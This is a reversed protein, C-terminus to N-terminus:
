KSWTGQLNSQPLVSLLKCTLGCHCVINCTASLDIFVDSTKKKASFCVELHRILFTAQDVTSKGRGFRPYEMPLLPDGFPEGRSYM